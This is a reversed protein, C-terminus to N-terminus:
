VDSYRARTLRGSYPGTGPVSALLEAAPVAPIRAEKRESRAEDAGRGDM